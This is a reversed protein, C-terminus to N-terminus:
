VQLFDPSEPIPDQAPFFVDGHPNPTQPTGPDSLLHRGTESSQRTLIQSLTRPKPQPTGAMFVPNEHGQAESDMRVLEHARRSGHSGRRQRYLLVLILPLCLVLLIFGVTVLVAFMSNQSPPVFMSCRTDNRRPTITLLVHNHATQQLSAKHHEKPQLELSICCYRGQDEQKLDLLTVFFTKEQTGYVVGVSRNGHPNKLGRPHSHDHCRQDGHPTYLWFHQVRDKPQALAGSDTCLLTVNAGEPCSYSAHPASVHLTHDHHDGSAEAAAILGLLLLLVAPFGM